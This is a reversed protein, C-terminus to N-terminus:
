NNTHHSKKHRPKVRSGVVQMMSSDATTGLISFYDKECSHMVGNKWVVEKNEFRHGELLIM